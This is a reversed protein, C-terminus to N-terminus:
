QHEYCGMDVVVSGDSDGDVFRLNGDLDSTAGEPLFGNRGADICPSSSKLHFDNSSAFRPDKHISNSYSLSGSGAFGGSSAPFCCFRLDLSASSDESYAQEGQGDATNGWLICNKLIANGNPAMLLAGGNGDTTNNTITCNILTLTADGCRLGGGSVTATNAAILSNIITLECDAAIIAGGTQTASNGLFACNEMTSPNTQYFEVGGGGGTADNFVFSCYTFSPTSNSVCLCGGGWTASCSEFQVATFEPSANHVYAGGGHDAKCGKIVSYVIRPAGGFIAVGGGCGGGGDVAAECNEIYCGGITPSSNIVVIGGGNNGEVRGNRITLAFITTDETEGSQFIFGRGQQNCDIITQAAGKEGYILLAKGKTDLNYNGPGTYTGV